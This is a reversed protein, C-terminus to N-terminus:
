RRRLRRVTTLGAGLVLLGFGAAGILPLPGATRPLQGRDPQAAASLPREEEVPTIPIVREQGTQPQGAFFSAALQDQPVFFTLDDGPRLNRVPTERNNITVTMDEPPTLTLTDGDRFDVTVQRGRDTVRQVEGEFRVYYKGDRQMVERCASALNPYQELAEESWTVDDCETGTANFAREIRNQQGFAATAAFGVAITLAATHLRM